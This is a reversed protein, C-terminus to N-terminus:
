FNRLYQLLWIKQMLFFTYLYTKLKNLFLFIFFVLSSKRSNKLVLIPKLFVYEFLINLFM